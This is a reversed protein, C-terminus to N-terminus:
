LRTGGSKDVKIKDGASVSEEQRDVAILKNGVYHM